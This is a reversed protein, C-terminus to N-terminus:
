LVLLKDVYKEVSYEQVKLYANKGLRERLEKDNYIRNMAKALEDVDDIPVVLSEVGSTVVSEYGEFNSIITPKSAAMAELLAIPLGEHRSPLVFCDSISQMQPLDNRVGIFNVKHNIQLNVAMEKLSAELVGRGLLLLVSNNNVQAFAKLLVDVAKQEVWRGVFLYVFKDKDIGLSTKLVFDKDLNFKKTDFSNYIVTIKKDLIGNRILSDKVGQSSCVIKGPLFQLLKDIYYAKKSKIKDYINLEFVIVKNIRLIKALIRGILNPLFLNCLLLDPRFSKIFKYIKFWARFDSVSKFHIFEWDKKPIQLEKSLTKESEPIITLVKVDYGRSYFENVQDVVMRQAGGIGFDNVFLLVKKKM